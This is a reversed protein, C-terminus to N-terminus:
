HRCRVACITLNELTYKSSLNPRLAYSECVERRFAGLVAVRSFGGSALLNGLVSARLRAWVFVYRALCASLMQVAAWTKPYGKSGFICHTTSTSLSGSSLGILFRNLPYKAVLKANTFQYCHLKRKLNFRIPVGRPFVSATGAHARPPAPRGRPYTTRDSTSIRLKLTRRRSRRWMGICGNRVPEGADVELLFKWFPVGYWKKHLQRRFLVEFNLRVCQSSVHRLLRDNQVLHSMNSEHLRSSRVAKTIKFQCVPNSLHIRKSIDTERAVRSSNAQQM